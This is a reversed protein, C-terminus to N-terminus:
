TSVCVPRAVFVTLRACNWAGDAKVSQVAPSTQQGNAVVNALLSREDGRAAWQLQERGSAVGDGAPRRGRLRAGADGQGSAPLTAARREVHVQDDDAM